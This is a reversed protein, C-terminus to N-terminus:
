RDVITGGVIGPGSMMFPIRTDFEYMHM